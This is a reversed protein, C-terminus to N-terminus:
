LSLLSTCAQYFSLVLIFIDKYKATTQCVSALTSTGLFPLTCKAIDTSSSSYVVRLLHSFNPLHITICYFRYAFCTWSNLQYTYVSKHRCTVNGPVFFQEPVCTISYISRAKLSFGSTSLSCRKRLDSSCATHFPFLLCIFSLRLTKTEHPPESPFGDALQREVLRWPM